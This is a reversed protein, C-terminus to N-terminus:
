TKIQQTTALYQEYTSGTVIEFTKLWGPFGLLNRDDIYVDALIKRATNHWMKMDRLASTNYYQFTISNSNCFRVADDFSEATRCTWLICTYGLRNFADIVEAAYDQLELEGSGQNSHKTITGDFDIALVASKDEFTMETVSQKIETVDNDSVIYSLPESISKWYVEMFEVYRNGFLKLRIHEFKINDLFDKTLAKEDIFNQMSLAYIDSNPHYSQLQTDVFDRTIHLKVSQVYIDQVEHMVGNHTFTAYVSNGRPILQEVVFCMRKATHDCANCKNKIISHKIRFPLPIQMKTMTMDQNLFLLDDDHDPQVEEIEVAILSGPKPYSDHLNEFVIKVFCEPMAQINQDVSNETM